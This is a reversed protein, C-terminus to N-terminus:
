FFVRVGAQRFRLSICLYTVTELAFLIIAVNIHYM